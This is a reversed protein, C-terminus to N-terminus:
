LGGSRDATRFVRQRVDGLRCMLHNQGSSPSIGESRQDQVSGPRQGTVTVTVPLTWWPSDGHIWRNEHAVESPLDHYKSIVNISSKHLNIANQPYFQHPHTQIERTNAHHHASWWPCLMMTWPVFGVVEVPHFGNVMPLGNMLPQIEQLIPCWLSAM